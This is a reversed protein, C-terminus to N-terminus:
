EPKRSHAAHRETALAESKERLERAGKTEGFKARNAAAAAERDERVARKRRQRLNVLDATM